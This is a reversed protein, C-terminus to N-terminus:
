DEEFNVEMDLNPPNLNVEELDANILESDLNRLDEEIALIVPDTAYVPHTPKVEEAPTVTGPQQFISEKPSKQIKLYVVLLVLLLFLTSFGITGWRVIDAVKSKKGGKINKLPAKVGSVFKTFKEKM